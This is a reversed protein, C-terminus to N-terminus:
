RAFAPALGVRHVAARGGLGDGLRHLRRRLLVLLLDRMGRRRHLGCLAAGDVVEGALPLAAALAAVGGLREVHTDSHPSYLM